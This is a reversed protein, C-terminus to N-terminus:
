EVLIDSVRSLINEKDTYMSYIFQDVFILYVSCCYMIRMIPYIITFLDM